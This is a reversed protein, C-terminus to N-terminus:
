KKNYKEDYTLCDKYISRKRQQKVMGSKLVKYDTWILDDKNSVPMPLWAQKFFYKPVLKNAYIGKSHWLAKQILPFKEGDKNRGFTGKTDIVYQFGPTVLGICPKTLKYTGTHFSSLAGQVIFDPTYSLGNLLRGEIEKIKRIKKVKSITLKEYSYQVSDFIQIAIPKIYFEAVVKNEKAELLWLYFVFEEDSDFYDRNHTM